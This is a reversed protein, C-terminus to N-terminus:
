LFILALVSCSTYLKLNFSELVKNLLNAGQPREFFWVSHSFINISFQKVFASNNEFIKSIKHSYYRDRTCHLYM